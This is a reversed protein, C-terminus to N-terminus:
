YNHLFPMSWSAAFEKLQGVLHPQGACLLASASNKEEIHRRVKDFLASDAVSSIHLFIDVGLQQLIDVDLSLAHHSQTLYGYFLTLSPINLAQRGGHLALSVLASRVPAIASGTAVCLLHRGRALELDYGGQPTSCRLEVGASLAYMPPTPQNEPARILFQLRREEPASFLAFPSAKTNAPELSCYQGCRVFGRLAADCELELLVHGAAIENRNTVSALHM